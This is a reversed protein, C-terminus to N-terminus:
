RAILLMDISTYATITMVFSFKGSLYLRPITKFFGKWIKYRKPEAIAFEIWLKMNMYLRGTQLLVSLLECKHWQWINDSFIRNEKCQSVHMQHLCTEKNPMKETM